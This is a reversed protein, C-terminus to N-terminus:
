RSGGKSKTSLYKRYKREVVELINVIVITLTGIWSSLAAIIMLSVPIIDGPRKAKLNTLHAM